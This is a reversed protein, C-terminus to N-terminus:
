VSLNMFQSQGSSLRPVRGNAMAYNHHGASLLSDVDGSFASLGLYGALRDLLLPDWHLPLVGETSATAFMLISKVGGLIPQWALGREVLVDGQDESGFYGAAFIGLWFGLPRAFLSVAGRIPVDGISMRLGELAELALDGAAVLNSEDTGPNPVIPFERQTIYGVIELVSEALDNYIDRDITPMLLLHVNTAVRELADTTSRVALSWDRNFADTM